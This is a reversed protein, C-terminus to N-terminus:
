CDIVYNYEKAISIINEKTLLTIEDNSLDSPKIKKRNKRGGDGSDHLRTKFVDQNLLRADLDLFQALTDIFVPTETIM